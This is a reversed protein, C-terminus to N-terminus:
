AGFVTHHEKPETKADEMIKIQFDMDNHLDQLRDEMDVQFRETAQIVDKQQLVMGDDQIQIDLTACLKDVVSIIEAYPPIAEVLQTKLDKLDKAAGCEQSMAMYVEDLKLIM